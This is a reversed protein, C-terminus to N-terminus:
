PGLIMDPPSNGIALTNLKEDYIAYPFTLDNNVNYLKAVESKERLMLVAPGKGLRFVQDGDPGPEFIGPLPIFLTGRSGPYLIRVERTPNNEWLLRFEIPDAKYCDRGNDKAPNFKLTEPKLEGKM